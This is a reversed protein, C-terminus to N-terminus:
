KYIKYSILEHIIIENIEHEHIKIDCNDNFTNLEKFIEM